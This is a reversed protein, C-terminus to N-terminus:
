IGRKSEIMQQDMYTYLNYRFSTWLKITYLIYESIIVHVLFFLNLFTPFNWPLFRFSLSIRRTQPQLFPSWVWIKKNWFKLRKRTSQLAVIFIQKYNEKLLSNEGEPSHPCDLIKCSPSTPSSLSFFGGSEKKWFLWANLLTIVM